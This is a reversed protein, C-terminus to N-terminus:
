WQVAAPHAWPQAESPHGSGGKKAWDWFRHRVRWSHQRNTVFILFWVYLCFIFNHDVPEWRDVSYLVHTQTSTNKDRKKVKTKGRRCPHHQLLGPPNTWNTVSAVRRSSIVDATGATPTRASGSALSITSARPMESPQGKVLILLCIQAKVKCCGRLLVM